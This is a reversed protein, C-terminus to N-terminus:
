VEEVGEATIKFVKRYKVNEPIENQVLVSANERKLDSVYKSIARQFITAIVMIVIMLTNDDNMYATNQLAKEIMSDTLQKM